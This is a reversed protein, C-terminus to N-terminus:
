SLWGKTVILLAPAVTCVMWWAQARSRVTM